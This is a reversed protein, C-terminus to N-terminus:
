LLVGAKLASEIEKLEENTADIGDLHVYEVLTFGSFNALYGSINSTQGVFKQVANPVSIKPREIIIYPKQISLVGASGGLSGSRQIHPKSNIATNSASNLLGAAGMATVPAAGTAIGAIVSAGSCVASIANQIAAGFNVSTLPINSICSGNYSYLVGKKASKVFAGCAGSLVDINYVVQITDDMIDRADLAHIGIYPLYLSINTNNYDLFSGVYKDISVSGCNLQVYQSSLYPMNVGSDIGGFTVNKHGGITPSVPVIALGIISEMPDSFLKKYTDLDFLNSWMFSSLSKMQAKTPNYITIFGLDAADITPLNPIDAGVVDDIDGYIGDGGGIYSTGNTGYPNEPTLEDTTTADAVFGNLILDLDHYSERALGRIRFHVCKYTSDSFPEFWLQVEVKPFGSDEYKTNLLNGIFIDEPLLTFIFTVTPNSVNQANVIIGTSGNGCNFRIEDVANAASVHAIMGPFPTFTNTIPSPINYDLTGNLARFRTASGSNTVRLTTYSIGLFDIIEKLVLSNGPDSDHKVYVYPMARSIIPSNFWDNIQTICNPIGLDDEYDYLTQYPSEPDIASLIKEYLYNDTFLNYSGQKTETNFYWYGNVKLISM